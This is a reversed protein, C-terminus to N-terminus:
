PRTNKVLHGSGDQAVNTQGTSLMRLTELHQNDTRVIKRHEASGRVDPPHKTRAILLLTEGIRDHDAIAQPGALEASIGPNQPSPHLEVIIRVRNDTNEGGSEAM